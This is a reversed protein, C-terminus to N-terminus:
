PLQVLEASPLLELGNRGPAQRAERRGVNRRHLHLDRERSSSM